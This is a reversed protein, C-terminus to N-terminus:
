GLVHQLNKKLAKRAMHIRNKVTGIPLNEQQAIEHYHFGKHYLLVVTRQKDDLEKLAKHIDELAFDSLAANQMSTNKYLMVDQYSSKRTVSSMSRYYKSIFINKMITYLWAKMNTGIRFKEKNKYARLFTDQLLDEADEKDKTLKLAFSKLFHDETLLQSFTNNEM